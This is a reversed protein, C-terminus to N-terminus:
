PTHPSLDKIKGNSWLVNGVIIGFLLMSSSTEILHALRVIDPFLANPIILQVATCLYLLGVSIIFTVKNKNVMKRIPIIAAGFLIGRIIQFPFIVPTTKFNNVTQGWFGLKKPSGSYFIRLEEFQWAVFYGFIMYVFLYIVGIVGLRILTSKINIENKDFASDKNQFYKILLPVVALVPFLSALTVLVIDLKPFAPFAYGFFVTEIQTMFSQIFFVVFVMNIFLKVGKLYTNRIIFFITFCVWAAFLLIFLIGSSNESAALEKFGQSFPMLANAMIFVIAYVISCLILKFLVKIV